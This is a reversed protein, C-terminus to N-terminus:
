NGTGRLGTGYSSKKSIAFMGRGLKNIRGERLLAGFARLGDERGGETAGGLLALKRMIQPRSFTQRGEHVTLYAAAAEMLDALTDAGEAAVFDPFSVEPVVGPPLDDDLPYVPRDDDIGERKGGQAGILNAVSREISSAQNPAPEVRQTELLVLPPRGGATRGTNGPLPMVARSLDDRYRDAPDTDAADASTATTNGLTREAETAAVAAKLHAFASVRRQSDEGEFRSRTTEVIREVEAERESRDIGELISRGDRLRRPGYEAGTDSPAISTSATEEHEDRVGATGDGRTEAGRREGDPAPEAGPAAPAAVRRQLLLTRLREAVTGVAAAATAQRAVPAHTEHTAMPADPADHRPPLHADAGDSDVSLEGAAESPSGPATEAQDVPNGDADTQPTAAPDPPEDSATQIDVEAAGPAASGARPTPVPSAVPADELAEEVAPAEPMRDSDGDDSADHEDATLALAEAIGDEDPPPTSSENGAQTPELAEANDDQLDPAVRAEDTEAPQDSAVADPAVAEDSGHSEPREPASTREDRQERDDEHREAVERVGSEEGDEDEFSTPQRATAFDPIGADEPPDEVIAAIPPFGSDEVPAADEASASEGEAEEGFISSAGDEPSRTALVANRLRVLRAAVGDPPPGIDAKGTPFIDATNEAAGDEPRLFVNREEVRASVRRQLGREAIRQLEAADPSPPIAGFTPSVETLERFYEAIAKMTAFADDFGELTCAFTGYSVTLKRGGSM